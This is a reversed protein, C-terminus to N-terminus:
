LPLCKQEKIQDYYERCEDERGRIIRHGRLSGFRSTIVTCQYRRSEDDLYIVVWDHTTGLEHARATNSYLATYHRGHRETYLIPLWAAGTPNFRRPAIMLLKGATAKERYERDVDLLEAVSPIEEFRDPERPAATPTSQRGRGSLCEVVSRVRKRGMGPVRALRGDIAAAELEDLTSIGLQKHIRAAMDHGIGSVTSLATTPDSAARLRDLLPLHGTRALTEVSRALSKGIDPLEDLGDVGERDLITQVPEALEDIVQAARRYSRVRFPNEARAELLEALEGLRRAVAANDLTKPKATVESREEHEPRDFVPERSFATELDRRNSELLAVM